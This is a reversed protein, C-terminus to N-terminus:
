RDPSARSGEWARPREAEEFRALSDGKLAAELLEPLITPTCAFTPVGISRVKRAMAHDFEPAGDDALALLCVTRVGSGVLDELRQALSAGDGGEYLDTILLLLTKRPTRVLEQCYGVARNIDTGGGLRVGFLVDVPDECLNTLDVM